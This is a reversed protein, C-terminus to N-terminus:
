HKIPCFVQTYRGDALALRVNQALENLRATMSPVPMDLMTQDQPHSDSFYMM